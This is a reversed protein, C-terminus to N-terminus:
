VFPGDLEARNPYINKLIHQIIDNNVLKLKYFHWFMEDLEPASVDEEILYNYDGQRFKMSRMHKFFAFSVIAYCLRSENWSEGAQAEIFKQM